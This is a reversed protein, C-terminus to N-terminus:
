SYSVVTAVTKRETRKHGQEHVPLCDRCGISTVPTIPATWAYKLHEGPDVFCMSVVNWKEAKKPRWAPQTRTNLDRSVSLQEYDRSILFTRMAAALRQGPLRHLAGPSLRGRSGGQGPGAQIHPAEGRRLPQTQSAPLGRQRPGPVSLGPPRARRQLPAACQGMPGAQAGGTPGAIGSGRLPASRSKRHASGRRSSPTRGSRCAKAPVGEATRPEPNRTALGRCSPESTLLRPGPPGSGGRARRTNSPRVGERPVPLGAKCRPVGRAM